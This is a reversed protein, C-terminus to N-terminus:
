PLALCFALVAPPALLSPNSRHRECYLFRSTMKHQTSFARWTETVRLVQSVHFMPSFRCTHGEVMRLVLACLTSEGDKYGPQTGDDNGLYQGLVVNEARIPEIAKLM